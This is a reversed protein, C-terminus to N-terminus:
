APIEAIHRNNWVALVRDGVVFRNDQGPSQTNTRSISLRVGDATDVVYLTNAGVFSAEKVIAIVATEDGAPAYTPHRLQM